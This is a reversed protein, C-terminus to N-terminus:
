AHNNRGWVATFDRVHRYFAQRQDQLWHDQFDKARQWNQASMQEMRQPDMAVAQIKAALAAADGPPVLDTEPLLEPIGGVSSGICPLARAMAEVMARPLGEAWSPMIFIDAADLAAKVADGATLQGLFCVQESVGLQQAQTQLQPRLRGDGVISLKLTLGAHQTLALAKILIDPAKYGVELTGVFILHLPRPEASPHWQRPQTAIATAPLEVDSVSFMKQPCPYRAQLARQTVYSVAAARQCRRKLDHTLQWRFFARLPHKFSGPAFVDQPDGIVEVAYPHQAQRLQQELTGVFGAGGRIIVADSSAIAQRAQQQVSYAKRLYDQPGVFYPIVTFTVQHGSALKWDAAIASVDQVRAIVNVQDFVQLYRQWFSYAYITQTWIQQDPTRQFRHDVTVSVRMCGGCKRVIM